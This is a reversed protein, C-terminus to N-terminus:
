IETLCLLFLSLVCLWLAQMHQLKDSTRSFGLRRTAASRPPGIYSQLAEHGCVRMNCTRCAPTWRGTQGSVRPPRDAGRLPVRRRRRSTEVLVIATSLRRPHAHLPETLALQSLSCACTPTVHRSLDGRQGASSPFSSSSSSGWLPRQFSSPTAAPDCRTKLWIAFHRCCAVLRWM